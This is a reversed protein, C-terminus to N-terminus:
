VFVVESNVNYNKRDPPAALFPAFKKVQEQYYGSEEGAVAAEKSEWLTVAVGEDAEESILLFCSM